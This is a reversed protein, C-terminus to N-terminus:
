LAKRIGLQAGQKHVNSLAGKRHSGGACICVCMCACLHLNMYQKDVSSLDCRQRQTRVLSVVDFTAFECFIFKLVGNLVRMCSFVFMQTCQQICLRKCSFSTQTKACSCQLSSFAVHIAGAAGGPLGFMSGAPITEWKQRCSHAAQRREGARLCCRPKGHPAAPAMSLVARFRTRARDPTCINTCQHTHLQSCAHM